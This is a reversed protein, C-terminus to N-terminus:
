RGKLKVQPKVEGKEAQGKTESVGLSLFICIYSLRYLFVYTIVDPFSFFYIKLWILIEGLKAQPRVGGDGAQFTVESM